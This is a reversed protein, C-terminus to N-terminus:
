DKYARNLLHSRRRLIGFRASCCAKFIKRFAVRFENNKYAYIWPNLGSNLVALLTLYNWLWASVHVETLVEALLCLLYPLWLALFVGIVLALTKAYKADKMIFRMRLNHHVSSEVAAIARAHHRAVTYIRFYCVTIAACAPGFIASLFLIHANDHLLKFSCHQQQTHRSVEAASDLASAASAGEDGTHLSEGWARPINPDSYWGLPLPAWVISASYLWTLVVLLVIRRMTMVSVYKLPSVLATHRDYAIAALTLLSVGCATMLIRNPALCLVLDSVQGPLVEVAIVFPTVLAVFVDVAALSVIFYNTPIQLRKFKAVSVIVLLNSALIFPVILAVVVVGCIQEASWSSTLDAAM